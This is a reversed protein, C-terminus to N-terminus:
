YRVTLYFGHGSAFGRSFHGALNSTLSTRQHWSLTETDPISRLRLSPFTGVKPSGRTSLLFLFASRVITTPIPQRPPHTRRFRLLRSQHPRHLQSRRLDLCAM